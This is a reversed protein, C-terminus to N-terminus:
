NYVISETRSKACCHVFYSHFAFRRPVQRPESRNAVARGFYPLDWRDASGMDEPGQSLRRTVALRTANIRTALVCNALVFICVVVNQAVPATRFGTCIKVLQAEVLDHHAKLLQSEAQGLRLPGKPPPRAARRAGHLVAEDAANALFVVLVVSIFFM